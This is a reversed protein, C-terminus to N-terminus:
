HDAYLDDVFAKFWPPRALLVYVAAVPLIPVMVFLLDVAILAAVLWLPHFDFM